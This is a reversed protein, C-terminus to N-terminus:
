AARVEVDLGPIGPRGAGDVRGEDHAVFEDPRDLLDPRVDRVEMGAVEHAALAVDDAAAAPVAEGSPPVEARVRDAQADTAVASRVAIALMAWPPPMAMRPRGVSSMARSTVSITKLISVSRPM